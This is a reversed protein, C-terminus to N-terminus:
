IIKDDTQLPTIETVGSRNNVCNFGNWSLVTINVKLQLCFLLWKFYLFLYVSVSRWGCVKDIFDSFGWFNNVFVLELQGHEDNTYRFGDNETCVEKPM